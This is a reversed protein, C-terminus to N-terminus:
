DVPTIEPLTISYAIHIDVCAVGLLAQAAFGAFERSVQPARRLQRLLGAIALYPLRSFDVKTNENGKRGM